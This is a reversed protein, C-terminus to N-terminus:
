DSKSRERCCKMCCPQRSGSTWAVGAKEPSSRNKDHAVKPSKARDNIEAFLEKGDHIGITLGSSYGTARQASAPKHQLPLGGGAPLMKCPLFRMFIAKM